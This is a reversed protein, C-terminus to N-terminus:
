KEQGRKLWDQLRRQALESRTLSDSVAVKFISSAKTMDHLQRWGERLSHAVTSPRM